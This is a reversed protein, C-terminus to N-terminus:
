PLPNIKMRSVSQSPVTEQLSSCQISLNTRVYQPRREREEEEGEGRRLGRKKEVEGGRNM